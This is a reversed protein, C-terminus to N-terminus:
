QRQLAKRAATTAVAGPAGGALRQLLQRAQPTSIRELVEIARYVRLTEGTLAISTLADRIKELRRHVDLAPKGALAKDIVPV